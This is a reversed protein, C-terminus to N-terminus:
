RSNRSKSYYSRWIKACSISAVVGVILLSGLLFDDQPGAGTIETPKSGANSDDYSAGGTTADPVASPSYQHAPLVDNVESLLVHTYHVSHDADVMGRVCAYRSTPIDTISFSSVNSADSQFISFLDNEYTAEDCEDTTSVFAYWLDDFTSSNTVTIVSEDADYGLAIESEDGTKITDDALAINAFSSVAWSVFLLGILTSIILLSRHGRVKSQVNQKSNLNMLM